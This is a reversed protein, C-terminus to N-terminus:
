SYVIFIDLVYWCNIFLTMLIKRLEVNELDEKEYAENVIAELNRMMDNAFSLVTKNVAAELVIQKSEQSWKEANIIEKVLRAMLRPRGALYKRNEIKEIDCDSLDLYRKIYAEVNESETPKFDTFIESIDEKGIDSQIESGQKLSFSTGAVIISVKLLNLIEIIPTLLGRPNGNHSRFDGYFLKKSAVNAEDIAFILSKQGVLKNQQTVFLNFINNYLLYL